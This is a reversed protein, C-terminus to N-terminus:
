LTAAGKAEKAKGITKRPLREQKGKSRYCCKKEQRENYKETEKRSFGIYM